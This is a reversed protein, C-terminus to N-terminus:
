FETIEGTEEDATDDDEGEFEIERQSLKERVNEIKEGFKFVLRIPSPYEEYESIDEWALALIGDICDQMSFCSNKQALGFPIDCIIRITKNIMSEDPCMDDCASPCQEAWDDGWVVDPAESFMFDYEFNDDSNKGIPNVYILYLKKEM